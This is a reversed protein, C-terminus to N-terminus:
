RNIKWVDQEAQSATAEPGVAFCACSAETGAEDKSAADRPDSSRSSLHKRQGLERPHPSTTEELM